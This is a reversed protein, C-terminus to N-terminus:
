GSQAEPLEARTRLETEAQLWDSVPDGPADGRDQYIQHARQRIEAETPERRPVPVSRSVEPESAAQRCRQKRIRNGHQLVM